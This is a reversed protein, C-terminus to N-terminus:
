WLTDYISVFGYLDNIEVKEEGFMIYGNFHGFAQKKNVKMFLNSLKDTHLFVPTFTLDVLGDNSYLKWIDLCKEDGKEDKNVVFACDNLKYARSKYFIMNESLAKNFSLGFGLNFGIEHGDETLGNCNSWYYHMNKPLVGRNWSLTARTDKKDFTYKENGIKYYGSAVMCNIKQSYIFHNPLPSRSAIVSTGNNTEELEIVCYFDQDPLFKNIACVITRGSQNHNIDVSFKSTEFNIDGIKSTPPMFLLSRAFSKKYTKSISKQNKFDFYTVNVIGLHNYDSVSLSLGFDKNAIYYYDWEKLRNYYM